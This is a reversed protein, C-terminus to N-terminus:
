FFKPRTMQRVHRKFRYNLVIEHTGANTVGLDSTTIDFAYGLRFNNSIQAELILDISDFSRWSVGAWIVDNFLLSINLDLSMPAGDAMKLLMNPKFKVTHSIPHVLGAMLYYHRVQKGGYDDSKMNGLTNRVLEPASIGLYLNKRYYYIGAGVNPLFQNTGNDYFDMDNPDRLEILGLNSNYNTVGLQLGFAIHYDHHDIKYAAAAYTGVQSTVGIRDNFIVGGLAIHDKKLPGHISITQTSPAGELGVWQYRSMMALSLEDHSGAYAPNLIMGNFMFQTIAGRQQANTTNTVMIMLCIYCGM